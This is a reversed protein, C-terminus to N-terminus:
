PWAVAERDVVRDGIPGHADDPELLRRLSAAERARLERAGISAAMLLYAVFGIAMVLFLRIFVGRLALALLVSGFTAMAFGLMVQLRRRERPQARWDALPRFSRLGGTSGPEAGLSRGLVAQHHRFQSVSDRHSRRVLMLLLPRGLMWIWAAALAGVVLFQFM